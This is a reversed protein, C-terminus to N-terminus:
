ISAYIDSLSMNSYIPCFYELKLKEFIADLTDFSTEKSVYISEVYIFPLNSLFWSIQVFSFRAGWWNPLNSYALVRVGWNPVNPLAVGGLILSILSRLLPHIISLAVSNLKKLQMCLDGALCVLLHFTLM